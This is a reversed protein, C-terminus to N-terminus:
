QQQQQEVGRTETMMMAKAAARLPTKLFLPPSVNRDVTDVTEPTSRPIAMPTENMFNNHLKANHGIHTRKEILLSSISLDLKLDYILFLISASIDSAWSCL